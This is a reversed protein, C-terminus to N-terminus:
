YKSAPMLSLPLSAPLAGVGQAKVVDVLHMAVFWEDLDLHGDKDIDSLNWIDRLSTMEMGFKIFADKVQGGSLKGFQPNLQNFFHEYRVQKIM